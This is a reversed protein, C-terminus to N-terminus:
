DPTSKLKSLDLLADESVRNIGISQLTTPDVKEMSKGEFKPLFWTATLKQEVSM